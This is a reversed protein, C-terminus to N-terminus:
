MVINIIQDREGMVSETTLKTSDWEMTVLNCYLLIICYSISQHNVKMWTPAARLCLPLGSSWRLPSPPTWAASGVGVCFRTYLTWSTCGSYRCISFFVPLPNGFYVFTIFFPEFIVICDFVLIVLYLCFLFVSMYLTSTVVKFIDIFFSFVYM